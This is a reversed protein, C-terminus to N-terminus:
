ELLQAAALDAIRDDEYGLVDHLVDYADTGFPAGARWV